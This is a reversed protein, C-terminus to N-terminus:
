KLQIDFGNAGLKWTKRWHWFGAGHRGLQNRSPDSRERTTKSLFSATESRLDIRRLVRCPASFTRIKEKRDKCAAIAAHDHMKETDLKINAVAEHAADVNAAAAPAVREGKFRIDEEVFVSLDSPHL